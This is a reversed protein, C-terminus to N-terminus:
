SFRWPFKTLLVAIWLFSNFERHNVMPWLRQFDAVSHNLLVQSLLLPSDKSVNWVWITEQWASFSYRWKWSAKVRQESYIVNNSHESTDKAIEREKLFIPSSPVILNSLAAQCVLCIWLALFIIFLFTTFFFLFFCRGTMNCKRIYEEFMYINWVNIFHDTKTQTHLTIM